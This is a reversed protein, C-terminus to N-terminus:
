EKVSEAETFYPLKRLEAFKPREAPTVNTSSKILEKLPGEEIVNLDIFGVKNKRPKKNLHCKMAYLMYGYSYIDVAHPDFDTAYADLPMFDRKTDYKPLRQYSETNVDFYCTSYGLGGFKVNGASDLVVSELRVNLHAFARQHMFDLAELVEKSVKKLLENNLLGKKGKTELNQTEFEDLFIYAKKDSYFINYLKIFVPPMDGGSALFRYIKSSNKMNARYYASRESLLVVKVVCPSKDYTGKYLICEKTTHIAHKQITASYRKLAEEDAIVTTAPFRKFDVLYKKLFARRDGDTLEIGKTKDVLTKMQKMQQEFINKRNQSKQAYSEKANEIMKDAAERKAKLMAAIKQELKAMLDKVKEDYEHWLEKTKADVEKDIQIRKRALAAEVKKKKQSSHEEVVYALNKRKDELQLEFLKRREDEGTLFKKLADYDDENDIDAANNPKTEKISVKRQISKEKSVSKTKASKYTKATRESKSTKENLVEKIAIVDAPPNNKSSGSPNSKTVEKNQVTSEEEKKESM